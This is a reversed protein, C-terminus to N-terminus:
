SLAPVSSAAGTRHSFDIGYLADYDPLARASVDTPPPAPRAHNAKWYETRLRGASEKHAPDTITQHVAWSRPHDAVLRGELRVQIRELTGAVDVMRGVAVPDVSYDNAHVRVYYDRPLRVRDAFGLHPAVPPLVAMALRDAPLRDVPRAGTRRVLRSNAGPLWAGLQTNFDAPSALARGPMFSTEYFNNGREVIGKHEPERVAVQYIRTGLIGAFSRAPETLKNRRGIGSESDWVLEKPVGGFVSLLAWMGCLLDVTQRSPIMMAALMRSFGLVMVLVPPTGTQGAGLPIVAPPFWLDCQVREGAVYETRDTPDVGRYEPRLLAVKARLIASSHEWGIREAIVTAPMTPVDKLLARIRPEAADTLSGRGPREYRPPTAAALAARVTNRALGLRRAITKIGLHESRHLRRIEAWDEMIIM